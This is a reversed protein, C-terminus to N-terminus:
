SLPMPALETRSDITWTPHESGERELKLPLIPTYKSIHIDKLINLFIEKDYILTDVRQTYISMYNM